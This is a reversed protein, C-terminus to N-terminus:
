AGVGAEVTADAIAVRRAEGEGGLLQLDSDLV